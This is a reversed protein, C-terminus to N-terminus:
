VVFSRFNGALHIKKISKVVNLLGRVIYTIINTYEMIRICLMLKAIVYSVYM